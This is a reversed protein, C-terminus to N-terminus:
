KRNRKREEYVGNKNRVVNDNLFLKGQMAIYVGNPANNLAGLAFGINFDADSIKLKEPRFAGTLIITKNKIVSLFKATEIITDTGHTIIIKEFTTKKCFDSLKKRDNDTIDNSDKRFMSIIKYEFAPNIKELINKVAPELIQFAYAGPGQPYDKDITGGTQIFLIKM